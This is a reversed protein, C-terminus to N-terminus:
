KLSSDSPSTRVPREISVERAGFASYDNPACTLVIVQLGRLAALNLMRQLSQVREPDTYAFADDFVVPLCGDHDAALIEAMALRVAAAVQERAGGSLTEFNFTSDDPRLLELGEIGTDSLNVRVQAAPGFLCQLYGSIRDALPQVLARDIAERSSSFLQHLQEVAKARRQQSGHSELAAAHRALAHSFEAQPDTSGDLTLRDRAVLRLNEADRRRTEQQTIARTFRELDAALDDPTLAALAARTAALLDTASQESTRAQLLAAERAPAEGHTEQLVQLKTELDRLSQRAQATQDRHTQLNSAATESRERLQTAHHRVTAEAKEEDDLAQQLTARLQRAAEHTDPQTPSDAATLRRQLEAKAAELATAAAALENALTEGGLAKWRTELQAIQQSFTQRQQLVASAHDLDRLTHRDLATKLARRTNEQQLRADALSTGGGPRILLRTNPGIALEAADTLTRAEGTALPQGDLTVALDTTLLEIGTAMASLSAEAQSASRDLQRLAELDKATLAPLQSLADQQRAIEARLQEADLVRGALRQHDAAKEFAAISTSAFDHRLRTLRITDANQRQTAEAAQSLERAEKEAAVLSAEMREAPTLSERSQDAQARLSRIATDNDALQKTFTTAAQWAHQQTDEQRRLQSVEALKTDTATKQTRLGPLITDAEAIEKEAREHEAAAQELRNATERARTVISEAEVLQIRALEPPSGAKPKGTATFLEDYSAAIRERVRQDTASQMVAALGDQQLRQVLTDKHDSAHGSPDDGSSGQWVWLHSWLTPLLKAAGGGSATESQLLEALRTEAEDDKLPTAGSRTLRTSGKTTGAFRKELEWTTGAAEFTLAVEPDGLHRTSVMEKQTKGGTKARLFLARHAAEALTSKGSENPGGILNRSPDFTVTFGKHVRYNRVTLSVLRM